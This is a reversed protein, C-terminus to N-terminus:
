STTACSAGADARARRRYALQERLTELAPERRGTAVPAPSASLAERLSRAPADPALAGPACVGYRAVRAEAGAVALPDTGCLVRHRSFLAPEPWPWCRQAVDGLFFNPHSAFAPDEALAAVRRGRGGLWKGVGWPLVGLAGAALARALLTRAPQARDRMRGLEHRPDLALALVEIGESSVLQRGAILFLEAGGSAEAVALSEPERTVRLRLGDEAGGQEARARLAAFADHGHSECLLLALAGDLQTARALAARLLRAPEFCPYIHVHADAYLTAV